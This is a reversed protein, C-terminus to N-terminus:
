KGCTRFYNPKFGGGARRPALGRELPASSPVLPTRLCRGSASAKKDQRGFMWPFLLEIVFAVVSVKRYDLVVGRTKYTMRWILRVSLFWSLNLPASFPILQYSGDEIIKGDDVYSMSKFLLSIKAKSIM